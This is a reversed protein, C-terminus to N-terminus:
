TNSRNLIEAAQNAVASQELHSYRQSMSINSHGLLQSVAFLSMGNKVLKSATSHRISHTCFNDLGLAKYANQITKPTTRRLCGNTSPFILGSTSNKNKRSLLVNYSRDTLKIVSETSTKTRWLRIERNDLDVSDWRLQQIENLRAASDLLLVVLDYDDTNKHTKLLNLLDTEEQETLIRTRQNNHLPM